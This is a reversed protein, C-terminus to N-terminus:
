LQPSCQSGRSRCVHDERRVVRPFFSHHWTTLIFSWRFHHPSYTVSVFHTPWHGELMGVVYRM